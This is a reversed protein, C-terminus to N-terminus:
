GASPRSGLIATGVRVHTAGFQVASEMDSSMGASIWSAAPHQAQVLAAIGALAEFAAEAQWEPPAVAMVGGLTLGGLSSVVDCLGMVEGAPVGGRQPAGDINVQVLCRLPTPRDEAQRALLPPLRPDDVSHVVDCLQSVSVAKNRQLRGVFHWSLQAEHLEGRKVRLQQEKSEGVDTCGLDVLRSIDASPHDKTVAILTVSGAPRGAAQEARSIRDRARRLGDRLAEVRDPATPRGETTM